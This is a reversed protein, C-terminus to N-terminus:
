NYLYQIVGDVHIQDGFVYMYMMYVHQMAHARLSINHDFVTFENINALSKNMNNPLNQSRKLIAFMFMIFM